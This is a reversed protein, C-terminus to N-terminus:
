QHRESGTPDDTHRSEVRKIDPMGRSGEIIMDAPWAKSEAAIVKRLRGHRVVTEAIFGKASLMGAVKAVLEESREKRANFVAELNGGADFWLEAASPPVNEVVSLVRVITGPPWRREAFETAVNGSGRSYDVVLLVRMPMM